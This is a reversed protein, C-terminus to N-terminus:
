QPATVTVTSNAQVMTQPNWVEVLVNDGAALPCAGNQSVNAVLQIRGSDWSSISITCTNGTYGATWNQTTDTIRLYNSTGTFPTGNPFNGFGAGLIAIPPNPQAVFRNCGPMLCETVVTGIAPPPEPFVGCAPRTGPQGAPFVGCGGPGVLPAAVQPLSAAVPYDAVPLYDGMLSGAPTEAGTRYPVFQGACTFGAAPIMHRVAILSLQQYTSLATLDLFTYGNAPTVWAPITAGTGVILTAYGNADKTFATDALSALVSGGAEQFSLSMYRMQEQGSRSCGNTCPTPPTAPVQVRIRLVQGAAALTAPLGDPVGTAIYSADPNTWPVYEGMRSWPLRNPSSPSGNCLRPLYSFEYVHHGAIQTQDNWPRGTDGNNAAIQLTNLAYDAPYACGSAVDRVIIHPNTAYTLPTSDLYARIMVVGATNPNTHQANDVVHNYVFNPFQQFFGSDSNWDMGPHRETADLGNVDVNYGNMMCGTELKGPTGGFGIPVALRQGDIYSVGPLFPNVDQSTLPVIRTDLISQSL